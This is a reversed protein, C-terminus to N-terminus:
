TMAALSREGAREGLTVMVKIRMSHAQDAMRPERKPLWRRRRPGEPRSESRQPLFAASDDGRSKSAMGAAGSAVSVCPRRAVQSAAAKRTWNM